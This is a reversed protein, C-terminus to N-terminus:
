LSEFLEFDRAYIENIKKRAEETMVEAMKEHASTVHWTISSRDEDPLGLTKM